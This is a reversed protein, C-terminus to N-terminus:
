HRDDLQRERDVRSVTVATILPRTISRTILFAIFVTIVMASLSILLLINVMTQRTQDFLQDATQNEQTLSENIEGLPTLTAIRLADIEGDIERIKKSM